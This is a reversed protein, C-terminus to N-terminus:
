ARTAFREIAQIADSESPAVVLYELRDLKCIRLLERLHEEARGTAVVACPLFRRNEADLGAMVLGTLDGSSFLYEQGKLDVLVAMYPKPREAFQMLSRGVADPGIAGANDPL